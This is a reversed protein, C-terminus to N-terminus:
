NDILKGRVERVLSETLPSVVLEIRRNQARGEKTENSTYPAYEGKGAVTIQNTSFDYEQTMTRVITAARLASYNWNDKYSRNSPASNDTHALVLLETSPYRLLVESIKELAEMGEQKLRTASASRFILAEFLIIVAKGDRSIVQWQQADFSSLSDAVITAIESMKEDWEDLTSAIATLQNKLDQIEQEKEQLTNKLNESTSLAEDGLQELQAELYDIRNQLKDQMSTLANNEGRREALQLSLTDIEQRAGQLSRSLQDIQAEYNSTLTNVEELYKKKSICSSLFFCLLLFLVTRMSSLIKLAQIYTKPHPWPEIKRGPLEIHNSQNNKDM